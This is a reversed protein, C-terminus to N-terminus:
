KSQGQNNRIFVQIQKVCPFVSGGLNSSKGLWLGHGPCLEGGLLAYSLQLLANSLCCCSMEGGAGLGRLGKLHHRCSDGETGDGGTSPHIKLSLGQSPEGGRQSEVERGSLRLSGSIGQMDEGPKRSM